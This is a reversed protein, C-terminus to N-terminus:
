MASPCVGPPREYSTVGGRRAPYGTMGIAVSIAECPVLPASGTLPEAAVDAAPELGDRVLRAIADDAPDGPCLGLWPLQAFLDALPWRGSITVDELRATPDPDIRATITADTVRLRLLVEASAFDFDARTPLRMVLVGGRVYGQADRIVATDDDLSSFAERAIWLEDTGDWRLADGRAGGVPAGYVTPWVDVVVLPDDAGGDYGRVRMLLAYEGRAMRMTADGQVDTPLAALALTVYAGFANDRCADGDLVPGASAPRRPACELDWGAWAGGDLAGGDTAGGDLRGADIAAGPVETCREDLDWGLTRWRDPQQSLIPDRLVYVREEGDEDSVEPRLPVRAGRADPGGADRSVIQARDCGAALCVALAAIGGAVRATRVVASSGASRLGM